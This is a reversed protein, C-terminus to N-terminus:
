NRLMRSQKRWEIYRFVVGIDDRSLASAGNEIVGDDGCLPNPSMLALSSSILSFLQQAWETLAKQRFRYWNGGKIWVLQMGELRDLRARLELIRVDYKAVM